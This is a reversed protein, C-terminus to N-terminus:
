GHGQKDDDAGVYVVGNSVVPTSQVAGNVPRSWLLRNGQIDYAYVSGTWGKQQFNAHLTGFYVINQDVTFRLLADGPFIPSKWALAGTSAKYAAIYSEGAGSVANNTTVLAYVLNNVISLSVVPGDTSAEISVHWLSKGSASDYVQLSYDAC